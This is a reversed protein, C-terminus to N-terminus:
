EKQKDLQQAATVADAAVWAANWCTTGWFKPKTEDDKPHKFLDQNDRMTVYVENFTRRAEETWINWQTKGVRYSNKEVSVECTTSGNKVEVAKSGNLKKRSM